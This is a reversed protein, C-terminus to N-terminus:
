VAIYLRYLTSQSLAAPPQQLQLQGFKPLSDFKDAVLSVKYPGFRAASLTPDGLYGSDSGARACSPM